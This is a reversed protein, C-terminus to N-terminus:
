YELKIAELKDRIRPCIPDRHNKIIDKLKKEVRIMLALKIDELM